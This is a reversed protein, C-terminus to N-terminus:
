RKKIVTTFGRTDSGLEYYTELLRRDIPHVFVSLEPKRQKGQGQFKANTSKVQKPM